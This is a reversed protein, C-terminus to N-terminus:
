RSGSASVRRTYIVLDRGEAYFDRLTAARAYGIAEYFARTAAYEHSGETEVRVLRAGERALEAEMHAVLTRGIGSGKRAPDVAIWYLDYTGLTMPTPGYCIYGRLTGADDLDGEGVDVCVRYDSDGALCADILELAVQKEDESFEHTARVLDVLRARHASALPTIM